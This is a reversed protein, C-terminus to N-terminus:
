RRYRGSAIEGSTNVVSTSSRAYAITEVHAYPKPVRAASTATAETEGLSDRDGDVSANSNTSASVEFDAM